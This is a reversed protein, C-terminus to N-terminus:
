GRGSAINRIRNQPGLDLADSGAAPLSPRRVAEYTEVTSIATYRTAPADQRVM